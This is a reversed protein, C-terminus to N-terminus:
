YFNPKSLEIATMDIATLDTKRIKDTVIVTMTVEDVNVIEPHQLCLEVEWVNVTAFKRGDSKQTVMWFRKIAEKRMASNGNRCQCLM